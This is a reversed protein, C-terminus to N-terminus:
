AVLKLTTLAEQAKQGVSASIPDNAWSFHEAIRQLEERTFTLDARNREADQRRLQEAAWAKSRQAFTSDYKHLRDQIRTVRMQVVRSNVSLVHKTRRLVHDEIKTREEIWAYGFPKGPQDFLNM